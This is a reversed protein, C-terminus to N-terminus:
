VMEECQKSSGYMLCLGKVGYGLGECWIESSGLMSVIGECGLM